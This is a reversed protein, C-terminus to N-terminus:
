ATVRVAVRHCANNVYGRPNWGPLVMPQSRGQSDEARAWLEYYGPQPFTIPQRFRQWALRNAPRDLKARQWTAGFDISTYVRQVALDGAWAHGRLEFADGLAQTAGSRM